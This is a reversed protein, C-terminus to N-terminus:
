GKYKRRLIYGLLGTLVIITPPFMLAIYDTLENSVQGKLNEPNLLFMGASVQNYITSKM